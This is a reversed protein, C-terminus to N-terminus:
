LRGPEETWPTKWVLVSSHTTMEEETWPVKWSLISTHTIMEKELPDERSSSRPISGMDGTEGASAPLNKVVSGGPFGEKLTLILSIITDIIFIPRHLFSSDVRDSPWIVRSLTPPLPFSLTKLTRRLLPFEQMLHSDTANHDPANEAPNHRTTRDSELAVKCPKGYRYELLLHSASLVLEYRECLNM